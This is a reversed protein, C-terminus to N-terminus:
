IDEVVALPLVEAKWVRLNALADDEADFAFGVAIYEQTLKLDAGTGTVYGEGLKVRAWEWQNSTFNTDAWRFEVYNSADVGIRLFAYDLDATDPCMAWWSAVDEPRADGLDFSKAYYLGAAKTTEVADVKDFQLCGASLPAATGTAKNATEDGLITFLSSDEFPDIVAPIALGLNARDTM